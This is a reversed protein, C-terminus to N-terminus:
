RRGRAGRCGGPTGALVREVVPANSPTARGYYLGMASLIGFTLLTNMSVGALMITLRAPLSKSEFWRNSPIPLPGFPMMANPDGGAGHEGGEESGGEIM